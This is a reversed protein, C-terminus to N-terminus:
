TLVAQFSDEKKQARIPHADADIEGGPAVVPTALFVARGFPAVGPGHASLVPVFPWLFVLQQGLIHPDPQVSALVPAVEVRHDDASAARALCTEIRLGIEHLGVGRKHNQVGLPFQGAVGAIQQFLLTIFHTHQIKEVHLFAM